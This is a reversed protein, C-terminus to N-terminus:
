KIHIARQDIRDGADDASPFGKCLCVGPEVYLRDEVTIIGGRLKVVGGNLRDKGPECPTLVASLRAFHHPM